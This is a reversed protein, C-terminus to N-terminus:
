DRQAREAGLHASLAAIREAQHTRLKRLRHAFTAADKIAYGASQLREALASIQEASMEDGREPDLDYLECLHTLTRTGSRHMLAATGAADDQGAAALAAADLVAEFAGLWDSEADVSHFYALVPYSLHTHLTAASWNRWRLFFERLEPQLGLEAFTELLVIGSPPRGALGSLALVEVERLHLSTQLQLVFTIGATIVAFGSFAAALILWRAFGSADVESVGLTVISSGAVYIAQSLESLNPSFRSAAAHFMLGFGVLLLLLWSVFVGLVMAVAFGNSPCRGPRPNHRASLRRALPLGLGRIAAAPRIRAGAPGPVLLTTFVDSLAYGVIAMGILFEWFNGWSM